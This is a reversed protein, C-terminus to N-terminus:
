PSAPLDDDEDGEDLVVIAIAIVAAIGVIMAVISIPESGALAESESIPSAKREAAHASVPALALATSTLIAAISRTM